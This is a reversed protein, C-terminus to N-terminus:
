SIRHQYISFREEIRRPIINYHKLLPQSFKDLTRKTKKYGAAKIILAECSTAVNSVVHLLYMEIAKRLDDSVMVIFAHPDEYTAWERLSQLYHLVSVTSYTSCGLLNKELNNRYPVVWTPLTSDPLMKGNSLYFCMPEFLVKRNCSPSSVFSHTFVNVMRTQNNYPTNNILRVMSSAYCYVAYYFQIIKWPPFQMRLLTELGSDDFVDIPGALACEHYWADQLVHLALPQNSKNLKLTQVIKSGPSFRGVISSCIDANPGSSWSVGLGCLKSLAKLGECYGNIFDKRFRQGLNLKM